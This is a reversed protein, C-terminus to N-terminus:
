QTDVTVASHPQTGSSPGLWPMEAVRLLTSGFPILTVPVLPQTSKVPSMPPEDAGSHKM